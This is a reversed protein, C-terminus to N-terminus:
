VAKLADALEGLDLKTYVQMTLNIDSHRALQQAIKPHVGARALNTIFSTRLAHFDLVGERTEFPIGAAVLDTRLM